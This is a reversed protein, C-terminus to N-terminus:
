DIWPFPISVIADYRTKLSPGHGYKGSVDGASHGTIFKHIEESIGADRALDKFTHRLSHLTVEVDDFQSRIIRNLRPQNTGIPFTVRSAVRDHVPVMRKSGKTKTEIQRLDLFKIGDEESVNQVQMLEGGRMGTTLLIELAIRDSPSLPLTFLRQLESNSFPRKEIGDKGLSKLNLDRFPNTRVSMERKTKAWNFVNSMAARLVQISSKTLDEDFEELFDYADYHEVESLALRGFHPHKLWKNLQIKDARRSREPRSNLYENLATALTAKNLVKADDSLKTIPAGGKTRFDILRSALEEPLMKAARIIYDTPLQTPGNNAIELVKTRDEQTLLGIVSTPISHGLGTVMGLLEVHNSAKWNEFIQVHEGGDRIEVDGLLKSTITKAGSVTIKVFGEDYWQKPNVGAEELIPRLLEFVPDTRQLAKDFAEYIAQTHGHQMYRAEQKDSTGTSRRAQKDTGYQLEKPKTVQVYWKGKRFVLTSPNYRNKHLANARWIPEFIPEVYLRYRM